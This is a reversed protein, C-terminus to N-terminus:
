GNPNYFPAYNRIKVGFVNTSEDIGLNVQTPAATINRYIALGVSKNEYIDKVQIQINKYSYFHGLGIMVIKESSSPKKVCDEGVVVCRRAPCNKLDTYSYELCQKTTAEVDAPNSGEDSPIPKGISEQCGAIIFMSVVLLSFIVLNRKQM